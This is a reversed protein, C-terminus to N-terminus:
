DQVMHPETQAVPNTTRNAPEHRALYRSMMTRVDEPPPAPNSTTTYPQGPRHGSVLTRPGYDGVTFLSSVSPEVHQVVWRFECAQRHLKRAEQETEATIRHVRMRREEDLYEHWFWYGM